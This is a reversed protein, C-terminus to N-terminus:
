LAEIKAKLERAKDGMATGQPSTSILADLVEMAKQRDGDRLYASALMWGIEPAHDTYSNYTDAQSQTWMEELTAITSHLDIGDSTLRAYISKLQRTVGDSGGRTIESTPRFCVVYEKGLAVMQEYTQEQERHKHYKYGGVACLLVSAAAATAPLMRKLWPRRKEEEAPSAARMAVARVEAPSTAKMADIVTRDAATGVERMAKALRATAIAKQRLQENAALQAMFDAEEASSMEGKLYRLLLDDFRMMENNGTESMVTM